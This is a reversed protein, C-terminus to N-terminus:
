YVIATKQQGSDFRFFLSAHGTKEIKIPLKKNYVEIIADFAKMLTKEFKMFAEKDFTRKFFLKKKVFDREEL